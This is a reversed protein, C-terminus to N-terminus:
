NYKINNEKFYVRLNSLITSIDKQFPKIYYNNDATELSVIYNVTNLYQKIEFKYDDLLKFQLNESNLNCVIKNNSINISELIINKNFNLNYIDFYKMRIPDHHKDLFDYERIRRTEMQKSAQYYEQVNQKLSDEEIFNLKGNTNLEDLAMQNIRPYARRAILFDFLYLEDIKNMLENNTYYNMIISDAKFITERYGLAQAVNISDSQIDKYLTVLSKNTNKLETTHERINEAIFGLSVAAFLMVFELIYESWKKKHTPHHPHHVEM